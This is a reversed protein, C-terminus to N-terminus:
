FLLLRDPRNQEYYYNEQFQARRDKSSGRYFREVEAERDYENSTTHYEKRYVFNQFVNMM